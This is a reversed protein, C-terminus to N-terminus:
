TVQSNEITKGWRNPVDATLRTADPLPGVEGLADMVYLQYYTETGDPAPRSSMFAIRTGDPSWAPQFDGYCGPGPDCPESLVTWDDTAPDTDMVRIRPGPTGGWGDYAIKRGDPSWDPNNNYEGDTTLKVPPASPDAPDVRFIDHYGSDDWAAYAIRGNPDTTQAVAGGALVSLILGATTSVRVRKHEM